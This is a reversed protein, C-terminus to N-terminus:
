WTATTTYALAPSRMAFATDLTCRLAKMDHQWVERVPAAVTNPSGATGIALPSADEFHLVGGDSVDIKPDAGFGSVFSGADLVIATGAALTPAIIVPTTFGSSVVQLSIAQAPSAIVVLNAGGGATAVAATLARLDTAMATQGGGATGVTAAIGNLL